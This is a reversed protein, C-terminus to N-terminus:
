QPIVARGARAPLWAAADAGTRAGASSVRPRDPWALRGVDAGCADCKAHPHGVFRRKVTACQEASFVVCYGPLFSGLVLMHKFINNQWFKAFQMTFIKSDCVKDLIALSVVKEFRSIKFYGFM